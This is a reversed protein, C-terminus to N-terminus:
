LSRRRLMGADVTVQKMRLTMRMFRRALLSSMLRGHSASSQPKVSEHAEKRHMSMIQLRKPGLAETLTEMRASARLRATLPSNQSTLRAGPM